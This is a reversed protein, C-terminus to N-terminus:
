ILELINEQAASFSKAAAEEGMALGEAYVFQIDTVGVFQWFHKLYDTQTDMPTGQYKGGRAALVTVRKNELLGVPGNETYKFTIGARALRDFWAKLSSPIGFNYMPVALVIEDANKVDSVIDDSLQALRQQEATRESEPTMWAGMEVESLHPLAQQSLDRITVQTDPNVSAAQIYVQALKSSNGREANLSSQIVLIRKM